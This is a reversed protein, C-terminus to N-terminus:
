AGATTEGGLLQQTMGGAILGVRGLGPFQDLPVDVAQAAFYLGVRFLELVDDIHAAHAIAQRYISDPEPYAALRLFADHRPTRTVFFGTQIV